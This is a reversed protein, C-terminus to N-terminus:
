VSFDKFSTRPSVYDLIEFCIVTISFLTLMPDVIVVLLKSYVLGFDHCSSYADKLRNFGIIEVRMTYLLCHIRNLADAVKNEVGYKHKLM